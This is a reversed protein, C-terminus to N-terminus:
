ATTVPYALARRVVDEAPRTGHECTHALSRATARAEDREREAAGRHRCAPRPDDPGDVVTTSPHAALFAEVEPPRDGRALLRAAALAERECARAADRERVIQAHADFFVRAEARAEDREREAAALAHELAQADAVELTYSM